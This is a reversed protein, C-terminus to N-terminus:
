ANLETPSVIRSGSAFSVNFADPLATTSANDEVRESTPSSIRRRRGEDLPSGGSGAYAGDALATSKADLPRRTSGNRSQNEMTRGESGASLRLRARVRITHALPPSAGAGPPAPTDTRINTALRATQSTISSNTGPAAAEVVTRTTWSARTTRVSPTAESTVSAAAAGTAAGTTM